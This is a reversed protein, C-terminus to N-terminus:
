ESEFIERWLRGLEELPVCDETLCEDDPHLAAIARHYGAWRLSTHSVGERETAALLHQPKNLKQFRLHRHKGVHAFVRNLRQEIEPDGSALAQSRRHARVDDAVRSVLHWFAEKILADMFKDDRQFRKRALGVIQSLEVEDHDDYVQSVFQTMLQRVTPKSAVRKSTGIATM